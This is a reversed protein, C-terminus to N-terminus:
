KLLLLLDHARSIYKEPMQLEYRLKERLDKLSVRLIIPLLVWSTNTNKVGHRYPVPLIGPPIELCCEESDMDQQRTTIPSMAVSHGWYADGVQSQIMGFHPKGFGFCPLQGFYVSGFRPKAILGDNESKFARPGGQPFANSKLSRLLDAASHPTSDV